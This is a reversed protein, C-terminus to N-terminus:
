GSPGPGQASPAGARGRPPAIPNHCAVFHVSGECGEGLEPMETYCRGIARWCRPSFPCGVPASRGDPVVGEITRLDSARGGLRPVADLLGVTYPHQPAEFLETTTASEVVFGAYMVVVKSVTRAIVSMDHTILVLATGSEDTLESLRELIQAQTTVDLATTPEDAVLLKPRTAMAMAIMVRQRMGGSLQHPYSALRARGGSVGVVELLDASRRRAAKRSVREHAALTEILQEGITTVPNLSTLPDQFIMSATNGRLNRLERRSAELVEVGDVNVSGSVSATRPLLALFALGSLTKGCGSEGVIGLRDGREVEFSM